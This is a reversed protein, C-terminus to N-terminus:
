RLGPDDRGLGPNHGGGGAHRNLARLSILILAGAILAATVDSGAPQGGAFLIMFAVGSAVWGALGIRRLLRFGLMLTVLAVLLQM